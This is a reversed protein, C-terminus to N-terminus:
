GQRTSKGTTCIEDFQYLITELENHLEEWKNGPSDEELDLATCAKLLDCLQSRTMRIKLHKDITM